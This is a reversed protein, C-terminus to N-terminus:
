AHGLVWIEPVEPLASSTVTVSRDQRRVREKGRLFEDV